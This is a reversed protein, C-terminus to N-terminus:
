VNWKFLERYHARQQLLLFLNAGLVFFGIALNTHDICLHILFINISIPFLVLPTLRPFKNVLLGIGCLLEIVKVLPFLYQTAMFGANMTAVATTPTKTDVLQFFYAISAFVLLGGFLIRIVIGTIKM